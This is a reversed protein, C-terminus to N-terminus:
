RSTGTSVFGCHLSESIYKKSHDYIKAYIISKLIIWLPYLFAVSMSCILPYTPHNDQILIIFDIWHSFDCKWHTVVEFPFWVTHCTVRISISLKKTYLSFFFYPLIMAVRFCSFKILSIADFERAKTTNLRFADNSQVSVFSFQFLPNSNISTIKM